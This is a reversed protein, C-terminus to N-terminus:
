NKATEEIEQTDLANLKAAVLYVRNMAKSSKLGLSEIDESAFVAEGKEDVVCAAILKATINEMVQTIAGDDGINTFSAEYDDKMKATMTSVLVDGGWEPVPVVETKIEDADLIQKRTLLAM